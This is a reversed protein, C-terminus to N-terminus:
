GQDHHTKGGEGAAVVEVAEAVVEEVAVAVAVAPLEWAQPAEHVVPVLM